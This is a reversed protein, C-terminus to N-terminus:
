RQASGCQAPPSPSSGSRIVAASDSVNGTRRYPDPRRPGLAHRDGHRRAARDM